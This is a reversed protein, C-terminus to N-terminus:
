FQNPGYALSSALYLGKSAVVSPASNTKEVAVFGIPMKQQLPKHGTCWEGFTLVVLGGRADSRADHMSEPTEQWFPM